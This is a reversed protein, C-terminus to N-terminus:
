ENLVRHVCHGSRVVESRDKWVEDVDETETTFRKIEGDPV